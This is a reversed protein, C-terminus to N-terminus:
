RQLTNNRKRYSFIHGTKLPNMKSRCWQFQVRGINQLEEIIREKVTRIGGQSSRYHNQWVFRCFHPTCFPTEGTSSQSQSFLLKSKQTSCSNCPRAGVALLKWPLSAHSPLRNVYSYMCQHLIQSLGDIDTLVSIFLKYRLLSPIRPFGHNRHKLM